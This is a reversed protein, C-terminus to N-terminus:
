RDLESSGLKAVDKSVIAFGHADIADLIIALAQDAAIHSIGGDEGEHRWEQLFEALRQKLDDTMM